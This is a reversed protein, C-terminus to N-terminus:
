PVFASSTQRAGAPLMADGFSEMTLSATALVPGGGYLPCMASKVRGPLVGATEAPAPAASILVAAEGVEGGGESSDDLRRALGAASAGAVAPDPDGGPPQLPTPWPAPVHKSSESSRGVVPENLGSCALKPLIRFV